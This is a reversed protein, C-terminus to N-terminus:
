TILLTMQPQKFPFPHLTFVNVNQLQFTNHSTPFTWENNSNSYSDFEVNLYDHLALTIKDRRFHSVNELITSKNYHTWMFNMFANNIFFIINHEKKQSQEHIHFTISHNENINNIKSFCTKWGDINLKM